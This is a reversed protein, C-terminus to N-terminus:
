PDHGVFKGVVPDKLPFIHNLGSIETFPYEIDNINKDHSKKTKGAEIGEPVGEAKGNGILGRGVRPQDCEIGDTKGKNGVPFDNLIKHKKIGKPNGNLSCGKSGNYGEGDEDGHGVGKGFV